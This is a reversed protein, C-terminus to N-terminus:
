ANLLQDFFTRDRRLAQRLDETQVDSGEQWQHELDHKHNNFTTALASMVEAVLHDAGEVAERPDDVFRAQIDRWEDRFSEVEDEGFLELPADDENPGPRSKPETQPEVQSETQSEAQTETQGSTVLDDTSLRDETTEEDLRQQDHM